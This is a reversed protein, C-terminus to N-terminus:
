PSTAPLHHPGCEPSTEALLMVLAKVSHPCAKALSINPATTRTRTGSPLYPGRWSCPIHLRQRQTYLAFYEDLPHSSGSGAVPNRSKPLLPKVDMYGRQWLRGAGEWSSGMEKRKLTPFWLSGPRHLHAVTSGACLFATVQALFDLDEEGVQGGWHM